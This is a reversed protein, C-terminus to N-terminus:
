KILDELTEISKELIVFMKDIEDYSILLSPSLLISDGVIGDIFGQSPYILLENKFCINVLKATIGMEKPFPENSVKDKALEVGWLLGKGRYDNVINFKSHIYQLKKEFYEGKEKVNNVVNNEDIYNLVALSGAACLPNGGFTHGTLSYLGANQSIKDFIEDQVVVGAMPGYGSGVGKGFTIMDPIIGWHNSAFNAGTRGFGTIVEDIILLINNKNCMDRIIPFYEDPPTIGAGSAGTIPECILASITDAGLRNIVKQFYTACFLKCEPYSKDYPCHHCFPAELSPWDRLYESYQWRRAPNGSMSLAGMTSGHYSPWRSIIRSKKHLGLSSWYDCALKMALENAESGSNVLSVKNLNGPSLSAICTSLEELPATTFQGRYAFTIKDLQNKMSEIVEPVSHGINSAMAGSCGDLYKKGDDTYIYIGSGSEAVPRQKTFDPPFSNSLM